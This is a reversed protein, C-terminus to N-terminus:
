ARRRRWAPRPGACARVLADQERSLGAGAPHRKSYLQMRDGPVDSNENMNDAGRIAIYAQMKKMRFLELDRM